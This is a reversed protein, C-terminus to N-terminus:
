GLLPMLKATVGGGGLMVLRLGVEPTMPVETIMAPAFKPALWPVLVTMNFPVAPVGVAHLAVLRVTGTGAPAVVPLTMTVTPPTALLPELKVTMRGGLMALRFGVDPDTPLGTVIVPVFKPAVCPVLVIVNLPVVAVGVLQFAVVITAGTGAPAVV